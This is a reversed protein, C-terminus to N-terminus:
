ECCGKITIFILNRFFSNKKKKQYKCITKSKKKKEM